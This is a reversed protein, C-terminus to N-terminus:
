ESTDGSERISKDLKEKLVNSIREDHKELLETQLSRVESSDPLDGLGHKNRAQRIRERIELTKKLSELEDEDEKSVAPPPEGCRPCAPRDKLEGAWGIKKDCKLCRGDYFAPM